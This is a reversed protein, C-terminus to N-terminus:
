FENRFSNVDRDNAFLQFDGSIDVNEPTIVFINETIKQLNGHLAYCSGAVFDTIRQGVDYALGELNLVVAKGELLTDTIEREDNIQSPKIVCLGNYQAPHDMTQKSSARNFRIPTVKNAPKAKVKIDDDEEDDEIVTKTQKYSTNEYEVDDEDFDNDDDQDLQMVQMLKDFVGM